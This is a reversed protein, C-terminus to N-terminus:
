GVGVLKDELRVYFDAVDEEASEGKFHFQANHDRNKVSGALSIGAIYEEGGVCDGGYRGLFVGLRGGFFIMKEVININLEILDMERMIESEYNQFPYYQFSLANFVCAVKEDGDLSKDRSIRRLEAKTFVYGPKRGGLEKKLLYNVGVLIAGKGIKGFRSKIVKGLGQNQKYFYDYTFDEPCDGVASIDELLQKLTRTKHRLVYQVGADEALLQLSCKGNGSPYLRRSAAEIAPYNRGMIYKYIASGNAIRRVSVGLARKVVEDLKEKYEIDGNLDRRAMQIFARHRKMLTEYSWRFSGQLVEVKEKTEQLKEENKQERSRKRANKRIKKLRDVVELDGKLRRDAWSLTEGHKERLGQFTYSEEEEEIDRLEQRVEEDREKKGNEKSVVIADRLVRDIRGELRIDRVNSKRAMIVLRHDRQLEEYSLAGSLEIEEVAEEIRSVREERRREKSIGKAKEYIGRVREQIKSDYKMHAVAYTLLPGHASRLEEYSLEGNSELRKVLGRVRRVKNTKNFSNQKAKRYVEDIRKQTKQDDIFKRAWDLERWHTERVVEYTLKGNNELDTLIRRVEKRKRRKDAPRKYDETKKHIKDLLERGEDSKLLHAASYMLRRQKKTLRQFNGKYTQSLALLQEYVTEEEQRRVTEYGKRLLAIVMSGEDFQRAFYLKDRINQKLVPYDVEEESLKELVKELNRLRRNRALVRSM